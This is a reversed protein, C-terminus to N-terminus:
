DKNLLSKKSEYTEDTEEFKFYNMPKKDSEELQNEQKNMESEQIEKDKLNKPFLVYKELNMFPVECLLTLPIALLFSVITVGFALFWQSVTTVYLSAFTNNLYYMIVLCHVMYVMYNLRALVVFFDATLFGRVVRLRGVFTPSIILGVGLVFFPRSTLNYLFSYFPSWCNIVGPKNECSRYFNAYPFVYLATLGVGVVFSLLSILKSEKLSRYCKNFFSGVLEPYKDCKVLEFYSIGFLAGVFYAGMRSWPKTYMINGVNDIKDSQLTISVNGILTIIGNVLMSAIVLFLVLAKGVKRNHCYAIILPPSMIFFQMDNALYWVWGICEDSMGWPIFNNIFLFNSWPNKFCNINLIDSNQRNNLYYLSKFYLIVSNFTLTSTM